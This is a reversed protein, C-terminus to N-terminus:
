MYSEEKHSKREHREAKLSIAFLIRPMVFLSILFVSTPVLYKLAIVVEYPMEILFPMEMDIFFLFYMAGSCFLIPILTTLTIKILYTM